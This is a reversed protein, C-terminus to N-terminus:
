HHDINREKSSFSHHDSSSKRYGYNMNQKHFRDHFDRSNLKNNESYDRHHDIEPIETRSTDDSMSSYRNRLNSQNIISSFIQKEKM